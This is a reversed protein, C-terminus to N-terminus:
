RRKRRSNDRLLFIIMVPAVTLLVYATVVLAINHMAASIWVVVMAFGTVVIPILPSIGRHWSLHAAGWISFAPALLIFAALCDGFAEHIKQPLFGTLYAVTPAVGPVFAVVPFFGIGIGIYGKLKHRPKKISPKQLGDSPFKQRIARAIHPAGALCYGAAALLILGVVLFITGLNHGEDLGALIFLGSLLLLAAGIIHFVTKISSTKM